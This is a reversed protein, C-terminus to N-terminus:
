ADDADYIANLVGAIRVGAKLLRKEVIPLRENRYTWGISSDAPVDYVAERYDVSEEAWRRVTARQWDAVQADTPHNIADAWVAYDDHWSVIMDTDWVRHLNSPEGMWTVTADNGGRDTGTGVHLPQHIDGIMHIVMMLYEREAEPSLDGEHLAAIMREVEAIIDGNPNKTTEDYTTDSPVTVWHWDATHAYEETSRVRDMWTTAEVMSMDGLIREVEARATDTLHQQAVAGTIAHGVRGWQVTGPRFGFLALTLLSVSTAVLLFRLRM